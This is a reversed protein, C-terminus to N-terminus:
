NNEHPNEQKTLPFLFMSLNYIEEKPGSELFSALERRFAKIREKAESVKAKSTAVTMASFDQDSLSVSELSRGILELNQFHARRIAPNLIGSTTALQKGTTKLRANQRVILGLRLLRAIAGKADTESIGLRRAIWKTDSKFGRTDALALIAFNFWQGIVEYQDRELQVFVVGSQMAKVRHLTNKKHLSSLVVQKESESLLLAETVQNGFRLTPLRKGSLVESLASPNVKLKKALARLSFAPNRLRLRTFENEILSVLPHKM